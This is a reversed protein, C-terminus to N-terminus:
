IFSRLELFIIHKIHVERFVFPFFNCVSVPAKEEKQKPMQSADERPESSCFFLTVGCNKLCVILSLDIHTFKKREGHNRLLGKM